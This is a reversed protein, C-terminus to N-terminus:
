QKTNLRKQQYSRSIEFLTTFLTKTYDTMEEDMGKTVRDIIDKERQSNLIPLNNAKKYEAVEYVTEIRKKFLESIRDDIEDIIKRSEELKM